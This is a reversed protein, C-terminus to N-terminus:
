EVPFGTKRRGVDTGRVECVRGLDAAEFPVNTYRACAIRVYDGFYRRDKLTIPLIRVESWIIKLFEANTRFGGVSWPCVNKNAWSIQPGFWELFSQELLDRERPLLTVM